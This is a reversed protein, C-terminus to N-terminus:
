AKIMNLRATVIRGYVQTDTEADIPGSASAIFAGYGSVTIPNRHIADRIREAIDEVLEPNGNEDAYIGIDNFLDRGVTTKTDYPDDTTSDRIVVFPFTADEPVPTRTFVAPKARYTALRSTIAPTGVIRAYYGDQVARM